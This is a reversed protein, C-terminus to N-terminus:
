PTVSTVPVAGPTGQECWDWVVEYEGHPDPRFNHAWLNEISEALDEGNTYEVLDAHAGDERAQHSIAAIVRRPEHHGFANWGWDEVHSALHVGYRDPGFMDPTIEIPTSM